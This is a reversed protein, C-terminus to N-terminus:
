SLLYRLFSFFIDSDTTIGSDYCMSPVANYRTLDEM